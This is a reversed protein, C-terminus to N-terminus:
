RDLPLDADSLIPANQRYPVGPALRQVFELLSFHFGYRAELARVRETMEQPSLAQANSGIVVVNGGRLRLTAVYRFAVTFTKLAADYLPTSSQLNSAVVGRPSLQRGCEAYFERTRLHRPIGFARYADLVILDYPAGAPMGRLYARGDKIIIRQRMDPAIGFFRCAVEVVLPDIEVTYLAAEELYHHLVMQLRGGGLGVLLIREPNPHWALALLMARTYESLLALPNAPDLRSEIEEIQRRTHRYCLWLQKGSWRVVIHNYQSVQEFIVGPHTRFLPALRKTIAALNSTQWSSMAVLM